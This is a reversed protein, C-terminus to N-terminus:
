GGLDVRFAKSRRRRSNRRPKEQDAESRRAWWM